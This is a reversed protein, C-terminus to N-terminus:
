APFEAAATSAAKAVADAGEHAGVKQAKLMAQALDAQSVGSAEGIRELDNCIAVSLYGFTIPQGARQFPEFGGYWRDTGLITNGIIEYVPVFLQGPQYSTIVEYTAATPDTVLTGGLKLTTKYGQIPRVPTGLLKMDDGAANLYPWPDQHAGSLKIEFHLHAPIVKDSTAGVHGIVQGRKVSAGTLIEFPQILHAYVTQWGGGHDLIVVGDIKRLLSADGDAAALVDGGGRGQGLDIGTHPTPHSADVSAFPATVIFGVRDWLGALYDAHSQIHPDAVPNGFNM